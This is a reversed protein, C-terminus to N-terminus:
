PNCRVVPVQCVAYGLANTHQIVVDDTDLRVLDRYEIRDIDAVQIDNGWVSDVTLREVLSSIVQWSVVTKSVFTGNRLCVRIDKQAGVHATYGCYAVDLTTQASPLLAVPVLDKAFTMLYFSVKMGQLKYLMERLDWLEARDHTKFGLVCGRDSTTRLTSKSFLGQPNDVTHLLQSIGETLDGDVANVDSITLEGNVYATLGLDNDQPEIAFKADYIAYDMRRSITIGGEVYASSLPLVQTKTPYDNLLLESSKFTIETETVTDVELADYCGFNRYVLVYGGATFESLATTVVHIHNDGVLAAVSLYAPEYWHPITVRDGTRGYLISEMYQRNDAIQMEIVKQPVKRGTIREETGDIMRNITTLFQLHEPVMTEPYLALAPRDGSERPDGSHGALILFSSTGVGYVIPSLYTYDGGSYTKFAIDVTDYM